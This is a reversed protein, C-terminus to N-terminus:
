GKACIIEWRARLTETNASFRYSAAASSPRGHGRISHGSSLRTHIDIISTPGGSWFRGRSSRGGGGPGHGVECSVERCSGEIACLKGGGGCSCAGGYWCCPRGNEV